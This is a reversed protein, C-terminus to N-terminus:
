VTPRITIHNTPAAAIESRLKESEALLRKFEEILEPLHELNPVLEKAVLSRRRKRKGTNPKKAM